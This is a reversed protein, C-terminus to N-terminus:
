KYKANDLFTLDNPGADSLPAIGSIRIDSAASTDGGDPLSAGTAEALAALSLPGANEFFGPHNLPMDRSKQDRSIPGGSSATPDSAQDPRADPEDSLNRPAHLTM